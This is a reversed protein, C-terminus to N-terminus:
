ASGLRPITGWLPKLVKFNAQLNSALGCEGAFALLM